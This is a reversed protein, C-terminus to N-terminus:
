AAFVGVQCNEVTGRTGCYPRAVGVSDKGKKPFGSEDFIVVGEPDGLDDRVLHQSNWRRQEEEWVAERLFRQMARANGGNGPLALPEISKRERTSCQGVMSRWFHERPERRTFCAHFGAHFHRLAQMFGDVDQPALDLHPLAFGGDKTRCAPFM